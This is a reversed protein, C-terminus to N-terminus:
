QAMNKFQAATNSPYFIPKKLLIAALNRIVAAPLFVVVSLLMGLEYLLSSKRVPQGKLRRRFASFAIGYINGIMIMRVVGLIGLAMSRGYAEELREWSARSPNGRSDAYHQAFMIGLTEEEPIALTNGSLLSQIEERSMGSELALRTHAYSCVECGNVETVALMIREFFEATMGGGKRAAKMYKMTRLGKSLATFFEGLSYIKKYFEQGMIIVM